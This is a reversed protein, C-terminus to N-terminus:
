ELFFKARQLYAQRDSLGNYGGNVRRTIGLLDDQDAKEQLHRTEWFWLSVKLAHEPTSLLEPWDPQSMDIGAYEAYQEYNYRGTLQILGRGKFRVGEGPQTNGLDSRGEYAEGSALEETYFLSLSEHGIQALFHALRRAGSVCETREAASQMLPFYTEIKSSPATPMVAALCDSSFAKPQLDKLTRLTRGNPDVRGDPRNLGVAGRQFADIVSITAPGILGDVVLPKEPSLAQNLAAQVIRVDSKMNVGGAGVSCQICM